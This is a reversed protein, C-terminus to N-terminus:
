KFKKRNKVWWLVGVLTIGFIMIVILNGSILERFLFDLWNALVYAVWTLFILGLVLQDDKKGPFNFLQLMYVIGFLSVVIPIWIPILAM